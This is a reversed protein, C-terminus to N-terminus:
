SCIDLVLILPNLGRSLQSPNYGALYEYSSDVLGIAM